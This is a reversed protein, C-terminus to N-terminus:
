LAYLVFLDLLFTAKVPKKMSVESKELWNKGLHIPCSEAELLRTELGSPM